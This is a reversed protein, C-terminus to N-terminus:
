FHQMDRPSNTDPLYFASLKAKAVADLILSPRAVFQKAGVKVRHKLDQLFSPDQKSYYQRDLDLLDRVVALSLPPGPDGLDQLIRAVQTNIDHIEHQGVLERAM